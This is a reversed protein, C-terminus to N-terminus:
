SKILDGAWSWVSCLVGIVEIAQDGVFGIKAQPENSLDTDKQLM